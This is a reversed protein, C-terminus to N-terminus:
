LTVGYEKQTYANIRSVWIKGWDGTLPHNRSAQKHTGFLKDGYHWETMHEPKKLCTKRQEDSTFPLQSRKSKGLVHPMSKGTHGKSRILLPLKWGTDCKMQDGVKRNFDEAEKL